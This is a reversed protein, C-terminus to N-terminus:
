RLVTISGARPTGEEGDCRIIYYYVGDPLPKGNYTGDWDNNYPKADYVKVGKDDYITVSCQPYDLINEVLWYPNISDGNDPSFFKAPILKNTVLDGKVRVEVTTSGTCGNSATGSVTYTTTASPQAVPNAVNPNDLNEAPEWVYTALGTATLQSTQGENVEAPTAVAIVEPSPLEDVTKTATILCSGFQVDVSYTGPLTIEITPSTAGTSWQYSAFTGNVGLEKTDGSCLTFDNTPTTIAIAPASQVTITKSTQDECAGNNYSVKLTVTYTNAATYQFTPSELSSTQSNGFDWEYFLTQSPDGTSQNDFDIVQSTCATSPATFDAVPAATFTIAADPSEIAPCAPDPIYKAKVFYTGTSTVNLTTGIASGIDGSGREAWQYTFDPDDPVLTLTKTDPPCIIDAGPYTIQFDPVSILEVVTSKQQAICGNVVVDLYYRGANIQRFNTIPAPALGTGTYGNPGTWNYETGGVDNVQLTVTGGPCAPGDNTPIADGTTTGPNVTVNVTNSTEQCDGGESSVVVLYNGSATIDLFANTGNAVTSAGNKWEFNAGKSPMTTLQLPFGACITIPGGPDIVPVLCHKNRIVSVSSPLINNTNDDVSTFVIDPKGDGDIDGVAVHRNIYTTPLTLTAFDLNGTTSENNLVTVFQTLSAVVIDPKGDGDVDGFDLGWPRNATSFSQLPAFAIDGGSSTNRFISVTGTSGSTILQTAAIEPKNDGDLDGIKINVVTNGISLTEDLTFSINGPRSTNKFIFINSVQTLFQSTAIEPFGDGDLDDVALGDTSLIGPITLTIPTSAFSIAATTSQNVLVTVYAKPSQSDNNGKTSTVTLEPKGDNDLDAISMRKVNLGPLTIAQTSFAVNGPGTSTNRLVFIQEGGDESIVLDPKGDGNLDGCTTHLSQRGILRTIATFTITSLGPVATTNRLITMNNSNDSATSVDALGDGDFDCMCLDYLGSQGPFDVQGEFGAATVGQHGGFSYLFPLNTEDSLGSTLDTVVINEYTAGSPVSVELLQDSVFQVIGRAAGFSVSTNASDNNFTGQLTVIDGDKGKVKDVERIVPKQSFCDTSGLLLCTLLILHPLCTKIAKM